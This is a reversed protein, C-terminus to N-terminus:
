KDLEFWALEVAGHLGINQINTILFQTHRRELDRNCFKIPTKRLKRVAEKVTLEPNSIAVAGFIEVYPILPYSSLIDGFAYAMYTSTDDVITKATKDRGNTKKYANFVDEAKVMKIFEPPKMKKLDVRKKSLRKKAEVLIPDKLIAQKKKKLIGELVHLTRTRIGAGSIYSEICGRGGCGCKPLYSADTNLKSHGWEPSEDMPNLLLSDNYMVALNTGTGITMAADWRPVLQSFKSGHGIKRAAYVAIAVDNRLYIPIKLEKELKSPFKMIKWPCNAPNYIIGKAKDPQGASGIGMALVDKVPLGGEKAAAKVMKIIQETVGNDGHSFDIQETKICYIKGNDDGICIRIRTGGIELGM